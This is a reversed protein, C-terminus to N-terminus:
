KSLSAIDHGTLGYLPYAKPNLYSGYQKLFDDRTMRNENAMQLLGAFGAKTLYNDSGVVPVGGSLKYGSAILKNIGTVVETTKPTGIDANIKETNAQTNAIDARTKQENLIAQQVATPDSQFKGVLDYAAQLSPQDKNSEALAQQAAYQAAPDNPNNKMAAAALGIITTKDAKANDIQRQRDAMQATVLDAQSKEEKTMQDKNSAILANMYDIQNQQQEYQATAAKDAADKALTLNGIAVYYASKLTLAQTAILRLNGAQIPALGGSTIGRGQANVQEQNPTTYSTENQLATSQDALGQIQTSLNNVTQAMAPIGAASEASNTLSTQGQKGGILAAVKQMLTQNTAEAPTNQSGTALISQATPIPNPISTNNSVGNNTNPTQPFQINFPSTQNKSIANADITTSPPTYNTSSLQPLTSGVNVRGTTLEPNLAANGVLISNDQTPGVGNAISQNSQYYNNDM